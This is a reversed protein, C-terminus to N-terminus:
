ADLYGHHHLELFAFARPHETAFAGLRRWVAQFQERPTGGAPFDQMLSAFLKSKWEQFLANVLAEKSAFYLYVTGAAVGARRAVEPVTTGHFGREAFLELAAGLIADRKDPVTAARPRSARKMVSHITM